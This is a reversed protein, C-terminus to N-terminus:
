KKRLADVSVEDQTTSEGTCVHAIAERLDPRATLRQSHIHAGADFGFVSVALGEPADFIGFFDALENGGHARRVPM